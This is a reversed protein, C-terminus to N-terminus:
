QNIMDKYEMGLQEVLEKTLPNKTNPNSFFVIRPEKVKGDSTYTYGKFYGAIGSIMEYKKGDDKHYLGDYPTSGFAAINGEQNRIPIKIDKRSYLIDEFEDEGVSSSCDFIVINPLSKSYQGRKVYKTIHNLITPIDEIFEAIVKDLTYDLKEKIKKIEIAMYKNSAKVLFDYARSKKSPIIKLEDVYNLLMACIDIEAVISDFDKPNRSKKIIHEIDPLKDLKELLHNFLRLFPEKYYFLPHKDDLWRHGYRKLIFAHRNDTFKKKM